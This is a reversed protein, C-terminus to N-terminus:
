VEHLRCSYSGEYGHRIVHQYWRSKDQLLNLQSVVLKVIAPLFAREGGGRAPDGDRQLPQSLSVGFREGKETQLVVLLTCIRTSIFVVCSPVSETCKM